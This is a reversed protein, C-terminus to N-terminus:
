TPYYRTTCYEPDLISYINKRFMKRVTVLIYSVEQVVRTVHYHPSLSPVTLGWTGGVRVNRYDTGQLMVDYGPRMESTRQRLVSCEKSKEWLNLLILFCLCYSEFGEPLDNVYVMFQLPKLVPGQPVGSIVKIWNSFTILNILSLCLWNVSLHLM